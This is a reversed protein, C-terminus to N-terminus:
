GTRVMEPWLDAWSGRLQRCLYVPQDAEDNELGYPTPTRSALDVSGFWGRLDEVPYGIAIVVDQEDSPPGLERLSNHGSMVQLNSYRDVAGAEGYNGALVVTRDRDAPPLGDYVDTITEVFEPLGIQEGADYNVAEVPSGAVQSPPLLPLFLYVNMALGVALATALGVLRVRAARAWVVVPEAGAALLIPYLGCVYYPKGGTAIFLAVLVVYAVAFARWQALAHTRLLRWWGIAWVPVLMPSLLVLQFPLFLLVPESTGSEGAAIQKSMEVQPWSHAAQWWLNPAWIALALLAAMWPWRSTLTRRPGGLLVGMLLAVLAFAMLAKVQLGVGAIAGVWLWAPGGDRLARVGALGLAAWLLLDFSTTTMLHGAAFTVASIGWGTAALVQGARCAGFERAILGTLLVTAAMALSSLLRLGVLSGGSLVDAAHALLPVLPPQDVYGWSPHGGLMVFYLEDRHYGYSGSTAVLLGALLGAVTTLGRWAIPAAPAM